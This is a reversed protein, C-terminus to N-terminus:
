GQERQKHSTFLELIQAPASNAAVMLRVHTKWANLLRQYYDPDDRLVTQVGMGRFMCLTMNLITEADASSLETRSFFERWINDLEAHFE